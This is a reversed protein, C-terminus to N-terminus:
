GESLVLPELHEIPEHLGWSVGAFHIKKAGKQLCNTSCLSLFALYASQGPVPVPDM